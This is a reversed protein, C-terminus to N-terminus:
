DTRRTGDPVGRRTREAWSEGTVEPMNVGFPLRRRVPESDEVRM